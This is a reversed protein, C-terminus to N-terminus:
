ESLVTFAPCLSKLPFLGFHRIHASSHQNRSKNELGRQVEEGGQGGSSIGGGGLNGAKCGIFLHPSNESTAAGLPSASAQFHHLFRLNRQRYMQLPERFSSFAVTAIPHHPVSAMSGTARGNCKTTPERVLGLTPSRSPRGLRQWAM